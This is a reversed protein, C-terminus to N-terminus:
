YDDDWFGGRADANEGDTGREANSFELPENNGSVVQMVNQLKVEVTNTQPTMYEKRM